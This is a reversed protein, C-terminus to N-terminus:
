FRVGFQLSADFGNDGTGLRADISLHKTNVRFLGGYNLDDIRSTIGPRITTFNRVYGGLEFEPIIPRSLEFDYFTDNGFELNTRMNVGDKISLQGNVFGLIEGNNQTPDFANIGQPVYAFAPTISYGLRKGQRRFTYGLTLFASNIANAGTNASLTFFPIHTELAAPKQEDDLIVNTEVWNLVTRTYAGAPPEQLGDTNNPVGPASDSDLNFWTGVSVGYNFKGSTGAMVAEVAPLLLEGAFERQRISQQDIRSIELQDFALEFARGSTIPIVTSDGATFGVQEGEPSTLLVEFGFSENEPTLSTGELPVIGSVFGLPGFDQSSIDLSSFFPTGEVFPGFEIQAFDVRRKHLGTRVQFLRSHQQKVRGPLTVNGSLQELGSARYGNNLTRNLRQNLQRRQAPTSQTQLPVFSQGTEFQTRAETLSSNLLPLNVGEFLSGLALGLTSNGTQIEDFSGQFSFSFSVGPSSYVNRYSLEIAESDYQLLIRNHSTSVYFRYWDEQEALVTTLDFATAAQGLPFWFLSNLYHFDREQPSLFPNVALNLLDDNFGGGPQGVRVGALSSIPATFDFGAGTIPDGFTIGAAALAAPPITAGETLSVTGGALLPQLNNTPFGQLIQPTNVAELNAFLDGGGTPSPTSASSLDLIRATPSRVASNNIIVDGAPIGLPTILEGVTTSVAFNSIDATGVLEELTNPLTVLLQLGLFSQSLTATQSFQTDTSQGQYILGGQISKTDIAVRNQDLVWYFQSRQPFHAVTLQNLVPNEEAIRLDTHTYVEFQNPRFETPRLSIRDSPNITWPYKIASFTLANLLIQQDIAQAPQPPEPLAEESSESDPPEPVEFVDEPQQALPAGTVPAPSSVDAPSPLGGDIPDFALREASSLAWPGVDASSNLPLSNQPISPSPSPSVPDLVTAAPTPIELEPPAATSHPPISSALETAPVGTILEFALRESPSITWPVRDAAFATPDFDDATELAPRFPPGQPLSQEVSPAPTAGPEVGAPSPVASPPPATATATEGDDVRPMLDVASRSVTEELVAASPEDTPEFSSAHDSDGQLNLDSAM